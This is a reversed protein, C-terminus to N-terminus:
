MNDMNVNVLKRGAGAVWYIGCNKTKIETKAKGSMHHM